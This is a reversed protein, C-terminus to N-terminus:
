DVYKMNTELILDAYDEDKIVQFQLTLRQQIWKPSKAIADKIKKSLDSSLPPFNEGELTLNDKSFKIFYDSGIPIEIERSIKGIKKDDKFDTLSFM